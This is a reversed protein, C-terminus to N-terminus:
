VHARGIEAVSMIVIVEVAQGIQLCRASAYFSVVFSVVATLTWPSILGLMPGEAHSLYKIAIDSVGFLVGAVTALLLGEHRHEVDRRTSIRLLVAALAFFAGEVGILAALSSHQAGQAGGTLGIIALGAATITLGAWQRPGLHFGFFREALVALFVLGGSLVAQVTSLPALSLAGVHAGWAALSVIWGIAFWKSRFLEGASRLPHRVRVPPAAVAGRQKFLFGFNTGLASALSLILGLIM